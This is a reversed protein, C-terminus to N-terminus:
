PAGGAAALRAEEPLAAPAPEAEPRVGPPIALVNCTAGRLVGGAVSGLTAGEGGGDGHTGLVVLDARWEAAEFLVEDAVNGIRTRVQVGRGRPRRERVFRDVEQQAVQELADRRLVPSVPVDQVVLLSRLEPPRDVIADLLDVGREHVAASSASLDTTLLVRHIEAGPARLVLVPVPTRRVVGEATTGLFYRWIRSRRTAGVILLDAKEERALRTLTVPATGQVVHCVVEVGPVAERVAAELRACTERRYRELFDPDPLVARAYASQVPAPLDFAYAVHLVAGVRRALGAAPALVPDAGDFSAVGVVIKRLPGAM